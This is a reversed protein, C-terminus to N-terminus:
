TYISMDKKEGKEKKKPKPKAALVEKPSKLKMIDLHM